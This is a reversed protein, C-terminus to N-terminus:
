GTGIVKIYRDPLIVKEAAILQLIELERDTLNSQAESKKQESRMRQLIIQMVENQDTLVRITEADIRLSGQSITVNGAYTAEGTSDDVVASDAAIHIPQDRDSASTPLSIGLLLMSLAIIQPKM